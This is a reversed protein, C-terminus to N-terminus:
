WTRPVFCAPLAAVLGFRRSGRPRFDLVNALVSARRRALLARRGISCGRRRVLRERLPLGACARGLKGCGRGYGCARLRVYGGGRTAVDGRLLLGRRCLVAGGRVGCCIALGGDRVRLEVVVGHALADNLARVRQGLELEQHSVDAGAHGLGVALVGGALQVRGAKGAVRRQHRRRAVRPHRAGVSAAIREGEGTSRKTARISTSAPSKEVSVSSGRM